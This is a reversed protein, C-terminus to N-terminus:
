RGSLLHFGLQRRRRHAWPARDIPLAPPSSSNPPGLITVHGHIYSSGPSSGRYLVLFYPCEVNAERWWVQRGHPAQAGPLALPPWGNRSGAPPTTAGESPLFAKM